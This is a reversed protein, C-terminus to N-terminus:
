EDKYYLALMSSPWLDILRLYTYHNDLSYLFHHVQGRLTALQAHALVLGRDAKDRADALERRLADVVGLQKSLEEIQGYLHQNLSPRGTVSIHLPESAPEYKLSM